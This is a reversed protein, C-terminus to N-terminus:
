FIANLFLETLKDNTKAKSLIRSLSEYTYYSEPLKEVIFELEECVFDGTISAEKIVGKSIKLSFPIERKLFIFSSKVEFDPSYGYVWDNTAYKEERLAKVENIESESLQYPVSGTYRQRLFQEFRTIFERTSIKSSLHDYINTVESRNSQVAKDFYRGRNAKISENLGTLNANFLLTGHHLVRTKYIHEANGSIKKGDILLDNRKGIEAKIGMDALFDVIPRVFFKFNILKGAEGNKIFTFNVNGPGHFVSGGGSLRRAIRINNKRVYTHNFEAMINQHKGAVVSTESQWIMFVDEAHRRLLYEELALNFYIDKNNNIINLM